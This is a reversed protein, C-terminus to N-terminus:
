FRLMAGVYVGSFEIDVKVDQSSEDIDYKQTRYGVELAPQVVPVFDLTYDAKIRADYVQSDGYGVYKIDAELGIDTAPIQVRTRVYAMPLAIDKSEDYGAYSGTPDVTFSSQILKIDLGIDLTAWFTNDLLNYYLIADYQTLDLTTKAGEPVNDTGGEWSFTGKSLGDVNVDTYEIRVNPLVPVPHKVNLWVYPMSTSDYGLSDVADVTAADKYSMTGSPDGMFAGAGAEVRLFDAQASTGLLAALAAISLLKKM